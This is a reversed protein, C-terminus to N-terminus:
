GHKPSINLDPLSSSLGNSIGFIVGGFIYLLLVDPSDEFYNIQSVGTIVYDVDYNGNFFLLIMTIVWIVMIMLINFTQHRFNMRHIKM